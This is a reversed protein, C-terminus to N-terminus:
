LQRFPSLLTAAGGGGGGVGPGAGVPSQLQAALGVPSSLASCRGSATGGGGGGSGPRGRFSGGHAGGGGGLSGTGCCELIALQSRLACNELTADRWHRSVEAATSCLLLCALLPHTTPHSASPAQRLPPPPLLAAAPRWDADQCAEGALQATLAYACNMVVM